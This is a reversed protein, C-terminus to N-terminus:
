AAEWLCRMPDFPSLDPMKPSGHFICVAGFPAGQRVHYKYSCALGEPYLALEDHPHLAQTIWNQDGHVIDMVAPTFADWTRRPADGHWYMVSSNCTAPGGLLRLAAADLGPHPHRFGYSFDDLAWLKGGHERVRFPELSGLVVVDLDFYLNEGPFQGPAFLNLKSWWAPLDRTLPRCDIGAIPRDTLCVFEHEELHLWCARRLRLVYEEGYKDGAKVCLVRM